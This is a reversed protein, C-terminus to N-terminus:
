FPSPTPTSEICRIRSEQGGVFYDERGCAKARYIGEPVRWEENSKDRLMESMINQWIPTAGSVGSAVWSMPQNGNNGVWVAVLTNPTWGICWNDRLNNTTGTKVAVTKGKIVLKSNLGFVPSRANNDSLAQNILFSYGPEVVRQKEATKSYVMEGLYNRIELVPNIAVKDGLNAFVSYAQALDIMKVEGGGLALSLGFRNRDEWTTIGMDTALDIMSQVGNEALLKVSPINLSSALATKITVKGMFKGNYNKPSYPKQGRIEYTVPTDEIYDNMSRGRKLALLYNIPKISSGPQRLATVVNYKGDIDPAFYDKSGVMALIDGSKVDIVLAAGNNINLKRVLEIEEAVMMQAKEQVELDLSTKVTVGSTALNNIGFNSALYDKVYFVFHPASIQPKQSLIKLDERVAEQYDIENIMKAQRMEELVTKQRAKAMVYDSSVGYTTPSAPLGALFAIQALNLESVNKGFYREAAEVAGYIEGGFPVQNIYRELIETKSMKRELMLALALEKVKRKVSKEPSLFVNKILQQTITSGGRMTKGKRQRLNDWFANVTGKFSVGRHSFFEKDEIALSAKILLDPIQDYKIWSRNQGQYYKYLVKGNRDTIKSTLSPPQYIKNIDPLEMWIQSYGWTIAWTTVAVMITLIVWKKNSWVSVVIGLLKKILWLQPRGLLILWRKTWRSIKEM